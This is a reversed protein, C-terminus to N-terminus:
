SVPDVVIIDDPDYDVQLTADFYKNQSYGGWYYTMGLVLLEFISTMLHIFANLFLWSPQSWPLKGQKFERFGGNTPDVEIKRPPKKPM